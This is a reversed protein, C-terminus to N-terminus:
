EHGEQDVLMTQSYAVPLHAGMATSLLSQVHTPAITDDEDLFLMWAGHAAELGVNAAEARPLRRGGVVRVPIGDFSEMALGSPKADVLVIEMPRHTQAAVSALARALSARGMSRVIISVLPPAGRAVEM